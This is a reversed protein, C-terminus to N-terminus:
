NFYKTDFLKLFETYELSDSFSIKQELPIFVRFKHHQPTHSTTTLTMMKFPLMLHVEEITLDNDIDFILMDIDLIANEKNRHNNKWIINSYVLNSQLAKALHELTINNDNITKFNNYCSLMIQYKLDKTDTYELPQTYEKYSLIM